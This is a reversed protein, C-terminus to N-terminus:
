EPRTVARRFDVPYVRYKVADFQQVFGSDVNEIMFAARKDYDDHAAGEYLKAFGEDTDLGLLSVWAMLYDCAADASERDPYASFVWERRDDYHGTTGEVLWVTDLAVPVPSIDQLTEQTM